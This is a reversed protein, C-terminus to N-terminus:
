LGLAQVLTQLDELSVPGEEAEEAAEEAETEEGEEGGEEAGPMSLGFDQSLKIREDAFGRAVLRGAAEWDEATKLFKDSLLESAIENLTAM